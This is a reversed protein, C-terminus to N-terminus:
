RSRFEKTIDKETRAVHDFEEKNGDLNNLENNFESLQTDPGIEPIEWTFLYNNNIQYEQQDIYKTVAMKWLISDITIKAYHTLKKDRFSVSYKKPNPLLMALFAGERPTLNKAEKSFYFRAADNIGYLEEGYEIINLYIELIREKSMVKELTAAMAAEKVKRWLSRENTLFLNKIVQQTITSAGRLPKGMLLFDWVAKRIQKSDFGRHKYFNWDESIVIAHLAQYDIKEFSVWNKPKQDTLDYNVQTSSNYTLQPYHSRLLFVKTLPIAFHFLYTAIGLLIITTLSIQLLARKVM